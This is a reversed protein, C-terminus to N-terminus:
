RSLSIAVPALEIAPDLELRAVSLDAARVEIMRPGAGLGSFRFSGDTGSVTRRSTVSRIGGEDRYWRMALTADPVPFGQADSVTGALAHEGIDVVLTLSREQEPEVVIGEILIGPAARSRLSLEGAVFEELVFHGSEDSAVTAARDGAGLVLLSVNPVPLGSPDLVTASLRGAPANRLTVALEGGGPGISVREAVYPLQRATASVRVSYDDSALVGDLDFRGSADTQASQHSDLRESRIQVLAHEIPAGGEDVVYGGFAFAGRRLVADAVVFEVTADGRLQEDTFYRMGELHGEAEYRLLLGQGELVTFAGAFEGNEDTRMREGTLPSVIAAGPIPAGLEDHVTGAFALTDQWPVVIEVAGAGTRLRLTRPGYFVTEETRVVYDGTPLGGAAFRGGTDTRTEVVLAEDGAARELVIGLDVVPEGRASLVVGAIAGSATPRDREDADDLAGASARAGRAGTRRDDPRGAPARPRSPAPTPVVVTGGSWSGNGDDIGDGHDPGSAVKWAAADAARGGDSTGEAAVRSRTQPEEVVLFPSPAGGRTAGPLTDSSATGAARPDGVVGERAPVASSPGAGAPSGEREGDDDVALWLAVALLPAAALAIRNRTGM